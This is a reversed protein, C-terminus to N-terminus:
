RERSGVELFELTCGHEKLMEQTKSNSSFYVILAICVSWPMPRKKTEYSNYSQRSVGIKTAVEEQSVDLRARLVPLVNTLQIICLNKKADFIMDQM